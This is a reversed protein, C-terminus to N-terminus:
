EVVVARMSGIAVIQEQNIKRILGHIINSTTITFDHGLLCRDNTADRSTEM